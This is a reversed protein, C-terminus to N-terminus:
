GVRCVVLPRESHRMLYSSASGTLTAGLRGRVPGGVVLMGAHAAEAERALVPGAPGQVVRRSAPAGVATAVADLLRHAAEDDWPRGPVGPVTPDCGAAPPLVHTMTLPLDLAGALRAAVAATDVDAWDRVGCVVSSGGLQPVAPVVALPCPAHRALAARVGARHSAGGIALFTANRAVAALREAPPGVEVQLRADPVALRRRLDQLLTTAVDHRGAREIAHVLVLGLGLRGALAAGLRAAARAPASADVGCVIGPTV